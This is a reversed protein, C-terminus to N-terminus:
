GLYIAKAQVQAATATTEIVALINQDSSQRVQIFSGADFFTYNSATGNLMLFDGSATSTSFDMIYLEGSGAYYNGDDNGLYFYDSGSGGWATDDTGSTGEIDVGIIVDNGSGGYITDQSLGGVIFDDGNNGFIVDNSSSGLLTDEGDGGELLSRDSGGRVVDNGAGGSLHDFGFGGGLLYDDGEDGFLFDTGNGAELSDNGQGGSIWDNGSGGQLTDEGLGGIISDGDNGGNARDDGDGTFISDRGDGGLLFDDGDFGLISDNGEQGDILDAEGGGLLERAFQDSGQANFLTLDGTTVDEAMVEFRGDNDFDGIQTFNVEPFFDADVELRNGAFGNDNTFVIEIDGEGFGVNDRFLFDANGDGDVDGESVFERGLNVTFTDRVTRAGQDYGTIEYQSNQDNFWLSTFTNLGTGDYVAHLTDDVSYQSSFAVTSSVTAGDMSWSVLLGTNTNFWVLDSKGNQDLDEADRLSWAPGAGVTSVITGTSSLLIANAGADNRLFVDGLGDGDFDGVVQAEFDPLNPLETIATTTAGDQQFLVLSLDAVNQWLIDGNPDGGVNDTSIVVWDNTSLNPTNSM